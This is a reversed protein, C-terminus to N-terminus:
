VVESTRIRFVKKPQMGNDVESGVLGNKEEREGREEHDDM